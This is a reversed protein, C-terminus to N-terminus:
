FFLMFFLTLLGYIYVYITHVHFTVALHMMEPKILDKVDPRERELAVRWSEYKAANASKNVVLIRMVQIAQNRSLGQAFYSLYTLLIGLDPHSYESRLSPTDKATYPVAMVTKRDVGPPGYEVRYRKCLCTELLRAGGLLGVVYVLFCFSYHRLESQTTVM